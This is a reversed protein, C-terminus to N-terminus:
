WALASYLAIDRILLVLIYALSFEEEMFNEWTLGLNAGEYQGFM